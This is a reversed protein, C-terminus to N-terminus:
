STANICTEKIRTNRIDECRSADQSAKAVRLKRQDIMSAYEYNLQAIQRQPELEELRDGQTDPLQQYTLLISVIFALVVPILLAKHKKLWDMSKGLDM